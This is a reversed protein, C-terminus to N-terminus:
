SRSPYVGQLAIIYNMALFPPRNEHPMNGGQPQSMCSGMQANATSAYAPTDQAGLYGNAPSLQSAGVENNCAQGFAHAHAPMQNTLLVVNETGGKAGLPYASLGLGNGFHIPARGQLDPLAFTRVGDGGYTVGIVSFLAENGSIPLLQGNCFAWGNPAYSGAFIIIQGLIPDM